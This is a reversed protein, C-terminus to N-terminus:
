IRENLDLIKQQNEQIESILKSRYKQAKKIQTLIEKSALKEGRKKRLKELDNLLDMNQLKMKIASKERQSKENQFQDLKTEIACVKKNSSDFDERLEEEEEQLLEMKMETRYLQFLSFLHPYGFQSFLDALDVETKSHLEYHCAQPMDISVKKQDYAIFIIKKKDLDFIVEPFSQSWFEPDKKPGTIKEQMSFLESSKLKKVIKNQKVQIKM